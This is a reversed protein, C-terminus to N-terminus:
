MYPLYVSPVVENLPFKLIGFRLYQVMHPWIKIYINHSHERVYAKYLPVVEHPDGALKLSPDGDSIVGIQFSKAISTQAAM